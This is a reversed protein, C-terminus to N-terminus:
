YVRTLTGWLPELTQPPSLRQLVGDNSCHGPLSLSLGTEDLVSVKALSTFTATPVPTPPYSVLVAGELALFRENGGERGGGERRGERGHTLGWEMGRIKHKKGGWGGATASSSRCSWSASLKLLSSCSLTLRTGCM